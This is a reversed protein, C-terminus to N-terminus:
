IIKPKRRINQHQYLSFKKARDRSLSFRLLTFPICSLLKQLCNIQTLHLNGLRDAQLGQLAEGKIFLRQGGEFDCPGDLKRERGHFGSNLFAEYGDLRPCLHSLIAFCSEGMPFNITESM